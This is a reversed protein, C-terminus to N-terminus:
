LSMSHASLQHSLMRAAIEGSEAAGEMTSPHDLATHEGAFFIKGLAPRFVKRVTEGLHEETEEFFDAQGPAISSYSGQSFEEHVWSVSVPAEYDHFLEGKEQTPKLGYPFSIGPYLMRLMAAEEAVKEALSTEERSSFLGEKGGFYSTMVSHDKDFWVIHDGMNSFDTSHTEHSDIPLLIKSNTGYQMTEIAKKQDDGLIGEEIEIDRLPGCPVALILYDTTATKGGDFTLLIKGEEALSIKRLPSEYHIPGTIEEELAEILCSNGGEIHDIICPKKGGHAMKYNDKYANWFSEFYSSDLDKTDNGEYNRERMEAMYRLIEKGKFMLDLVKSLNKAHLAKKQYYLFKEETPEFGEQKLPEYFPLVEGKYLLKRESIDTEYSVISLGLEDILDRLYEAKGGDSIFKGGLEEYSSGFRVTYIRGGLRPRAEYVIVPHGTFQELRYAATLGALGGGIVTIQPTEASLHTLFFLFFIAFFCRM